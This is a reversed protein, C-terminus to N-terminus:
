PKITQRYFAAALYGVVRQNDGSVQGSHRYAIIEARRAGLGHAAQMVALLPGVGCAEAQGGAVERWLDQPSFAAVADIVRHDMTEAQNANHFHSLDTSAVLLVRRGGAATQIIEALGAAESWGQRGMVLPLLQFDGLVRQLFPLQVELSHEFQHAAPVFNLGPFRDLLEAALETAVPVAGLPTQYAGDPYVSTGVFGHHHSPAAIVVLDFSSGLVRKYAAAATAGSYVYGAHPAVLALPLPGDYAPVAALLEDLQQRLAGADAPYFSGAVAPPRLRPWVKNM